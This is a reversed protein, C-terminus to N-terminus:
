VQSGNLLALATGREDFLIRFPEKAHIVTGHQPKDVQPVGPWYFPCIESNITGHLVWESIDCM